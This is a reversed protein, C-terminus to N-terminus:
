LRAKLYIKDGLQKLNSIDEFFYMNNLEQFYKWKSIYKLLQQIEM